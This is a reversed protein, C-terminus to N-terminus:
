REPRRGLWRPVRLAYARYANDASALLTKEELRAQVLAAATFLVAPVTLFMQGTAVPLSWFVGMQGLFVPNRSWAFPGDTVLPGLVGEAVGIRWSRGMHAQSVLAVFGGALALVLGGWAFAAPWDGSRVAPDPLARDLIPWALVLGFSIRFALGTVRQVGGGEHFLWVGQGAARVSRRTLWLFGGLYSVFVCYAAWEPITM